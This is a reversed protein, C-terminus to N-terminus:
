SPDGAPNPSPANLTSGAVLFAQYEEDTMERDTTEGTLADHITITPKM